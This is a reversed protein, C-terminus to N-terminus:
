EGRKHQTVDRVIAEHLAQASEVADAGHFALVVRGVRKAPDPDGDVECTMFPALEIAKKIFRSKM